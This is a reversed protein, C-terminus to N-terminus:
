AKTYGNAIEKGYSLFGLARELSNGCYISRGQKHYPQEFVQWENNSNWVLWIRYNTLKFDGSKDKLLEEITM